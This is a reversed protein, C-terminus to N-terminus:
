LVTMRYMGNEETVKVPASFLDSVTKSTLLERKDGDRYVRGNKMMIVRNVNSPIDDLDHTIMIVATGQDILSDFINKFEKKVIVDLSAMPEDLLLTSPGPVLARSILVRRKEGLSLRGFDRTLIDSIGVREAADRVSDIMDDTVTHDKYIDTTRFFGSLIVSGVSVGDGFRTQLDMSVIGMRKRLDFINWREEGFLKCVTREDYYARADGKLLKM